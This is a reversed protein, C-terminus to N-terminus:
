APDAKPIVRWLKRGGACGRATELAVGRKANWGGEPDEEAGSDAVRDLLKTCQVSRTARRPRKGKLTKKKEANSRDEGTM